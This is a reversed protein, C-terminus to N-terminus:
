IIFSTRWSLDYTRGAKKYAWRLKEIWDSLLVKAGFEVRIFMYSKCDFWCRLKQFLNMLWNEIEIKLYIYRYWDKEMWTQGLIKIQGWGRSSCECRLSGYGPILMGWSFKIIKNNSVGLKIVITIVVFKLLQCIISQFWNLMKISIALTWWQLAVQSTCWFILSM